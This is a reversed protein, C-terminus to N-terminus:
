KRSKKAHGPFPPCAFIARWASATSMVIRDHPGTRLSARGTFNPIRNIQMAEPDGAGSELKDRTKQDRGAFAGCKLIRM